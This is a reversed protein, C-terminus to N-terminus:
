YMIEPQTGAFDAAGLAGWAIGFRANNLCSFPGKLGKVNQFVHDDPVFCDDMAIQGTESARLSLKGEIKPATLGKTEKTLIFGRIDDNEDKAWVVFIDAIPANTIWSKHWLYYLWRSNKQRANKM